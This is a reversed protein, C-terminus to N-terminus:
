ETRDRLPWGLNRDFAVRKPQQEDFTLRELREVFSPVCGPNVEQDTVCFTIANREADVNAFCLAEPRSDLSAMSRLIPDSAQHDLALATM